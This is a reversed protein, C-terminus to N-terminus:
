SCVRRVTNPRQFVIAVALRSSNRRVFTVNIWDVPDEFPLFSPRIRFPRFRLLLCFSNRHHHHPNVNTTVRDRACM